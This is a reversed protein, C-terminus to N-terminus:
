GSVMRVQAVGKIHVTDVKSEIRIWGPNSGYGGMIRFTDVSSEFWIWWHSVYGDMIRVMDVGSIRFVSHFVPHIWGPNSVYGGMIRFTDVRSEFQIWRHHSVYGAMIRVM